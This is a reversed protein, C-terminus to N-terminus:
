SKRKREEPPPTPTGQTGWLQPSMFPATFPHNPPPLLTAERSREGTPSKRATATALIHGTM